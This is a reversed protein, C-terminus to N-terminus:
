RKITWNFASGLRYAMNCSRPALGITPQNRQAHASNIAVCKANNTDYKPITTREDKAQTISNNLFLIDSKHLQQLKQKIHQHQAIKWQRHHEQPGPPIITKDDDMKQLPSPTDYYTPANPQFLIAFANHVKPNSKPYLLKETKGNGTVTIWKDNEKERDELM